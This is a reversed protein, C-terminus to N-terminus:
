LIRITAYESISKGGDLTIIQGTLYPTKAVFYAVEAIDNGSPTYDLLSDQECVEVERNTNPPLIHGPAIANVRVYPALEQALSKTLSNVAAKTLSYISHQYKPIDAFIDSITIICGRSQLLFSVAAQSLFYCAKVNTTLMLDWDAISAQRFPTYHFVSANHILVDLRGWQALAVNIMDVYGSADVLDGHVTLASEARRHNLEAALSLAQTRSHHYHIVVNYNHQHFYCAIAAGIRQAAGTIMVVPNM